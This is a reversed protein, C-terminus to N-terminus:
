WHVYMVHITSKDTVLTMENFQKAGTGCFSVISVTKTMRNSSLM